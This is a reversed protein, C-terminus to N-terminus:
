QELRQCKEKSATTIRTVSLIYLYGDPGAKIDTIRSFGQGLIVGQLESPNSATEIKTEFIYPYQHM